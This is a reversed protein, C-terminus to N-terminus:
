ASPARSRSIREAWRTRVVEAIGLGVLLQAGLLPIVLEPMAGLNMPPHYALMGFCNALAARRGWVMPPHEWLGGNKGPMLAIFLPALLVFYYYWVLPSMLIYVGAGLCFILGEERRVYPFASRRALFEARRSWFFLFLVAMGALSGVIVAAKSMHGADATWNFLSGSMEEYHALTSGMRRLWDSWECSDGLVYGPLFLAFAAMLVAGATTLFIERPTERVIWYIGVATCFLLTPKLFLMFALLAGSAFARLATTPRARLCLFVTMLFVQLGNVNAFYLDIWYPYFVRTWLIGIVVSEVWSVGRLVCLLYLAAVYCFVVSTQFRRYDADFDETCALHFLTYFFPTGTPHFGDPQSLINDLHESM